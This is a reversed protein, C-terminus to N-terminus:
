LAPVQQVHVSMQQVVSQSLLGNWLRTVNLVFILQFNIMFYITTYQYYHQTGSSVIKKMMDGVVYVLVVCCM